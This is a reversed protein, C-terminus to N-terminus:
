RDRLHREIRASWGPRRWELAQRLAESHTQAFRAEALADLRPVSARAPHPDAATGPRPAGLPSTQRAAGAGDLRWSYVETRNASGTGPLTALPIWTSGSAVLGHYDGLFRGGTVNPALMLDFGRRVVSETWSIGDRSTLLWLDALLTGTDATNSSLDFHMLGFTGDSRAQLVPTFAAVAARRNVAAPESWTRGGDASRSLAIADILGGSFRADQWAVWVAGTPGAAITPVIAGDRVLTGTDADRTGVARHEAITIPESWTAGKDASRVLRVWSRSGSPRTDIQVFVNLLTGRDPGGPIVVIRNGITQSVGGAVSPAFLVQSAQWSAGADTSRVLLTPGNGDVELRDWVAYVQRADTPDATLTNKDNFGQDTDRHLIVPASWSRGGDTSRSAIMANSSGPTFDAGSFALGMLHVTGDAGIDVWPDSVREHDGASGATAGGCRSMPHLTRSWSRGGDFSVASVLARAGGNSARDQQWAGVLHNPDTPDLALMPEVEADAFVTGSTRGGTCGAAVPTPGSALVATPQNPPPPEVVPSSGGSGGGGCAALGLLCLYATTAAVQPLLRASRPIRPTGPADDDQLRRAVSMPSSPDGRSPSVPKMPDAYRRQVARRLMGVM